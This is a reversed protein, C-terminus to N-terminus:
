FRKIEVNVLGRAGLVHYPASDPHPPVVWFIVHCELQTTVHFIFVTMNRWGCPRGKLDTFPFSISALIFVFIGVLVLFTSIFYITVLKSIWKCLQRQSDLLKLIALLLWRLHKILFINKFIKCFQWSIM